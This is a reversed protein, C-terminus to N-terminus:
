LIDSLTWQLWDKTRTGDDGCSHTFRRNQCLISKLIITIYLANATQNAM